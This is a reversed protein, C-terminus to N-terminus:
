VAPPLLLLGALPLPWSLPQPRLLCGGAHVSHVGTIHLTASATPHGHAPERNGKFIAFKYKLIFISDKGAPLTASGGSIQAARAISPWHGPDSELHLFFSFFCCFCWFFCHQLEPELSQGFFYRSRSRLVSFVGFIGM